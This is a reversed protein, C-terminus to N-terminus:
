LTDAHYTHRYVDTASYNGVLVRARSTFRHKAQARASDLSLPAKLPTLQTHQLLGEPDCPPHGTRPSSPSPPPPPGARRPELSLCEASAWGGWSNEAPTRSHGPADPPLGQASMSLSRGHGQHPSRIDRLQLAPHRTRGGLFTPFSTMCVGCARLIGVPSSKWHSPKM